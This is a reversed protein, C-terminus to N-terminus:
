YDFLAMFAITYSFVDPSFLERIVPWIIKEVIRIQEFQRSIYSLRSFYQKTGITDFNEWTLPLVEALIMYNSLDQLFILEGSEVGLASVHGLFCTAALRRFFDRYKNDKNQHELCSRIYQKREEDSGEFVHAPWLFKGKDFVDQEQAVHCFTDVIGFILQWGSEMLEGESLEERSQLFQQMVDPMGSVVTEFNEFDHNEYYKGAEIGTYIVTGLAVSFPVSTDQLLEVGKAIFRTLENIRLDGMTTMSTEGETIVRVDDPKGYLLELVGECSLSMSCVVNENFNRSRRPFRKCTDSMHEEGYNKYIRCLGEEDLFPCRKTDPMVVMTAEGKVEINEKLFQGFEDTQRRYFDATESDFDIGWGACCTSVCDKGICKFKKYFDPYVKMRSLKM